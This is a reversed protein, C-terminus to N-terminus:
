ANIWTSVLYIFIYISFLFNMIYDLGFLQRRLKSAYM